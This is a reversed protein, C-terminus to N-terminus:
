TSGSSSRGVTRTRAEERLMKILAEFDLSGDGEPAKWRSRKARSIVLMGARRTEPALYKAVLQERVVKKLSAGSYGSKDGVKLELVGELPRATSRFRIDTEKEDATVGKREVALTAAAEARRVAARHYSKDRDNDNAEMGASGGGARFERWAADRPKWYVSGGGHRHTKFTVVPWATGDRDTVISGIYGQRKDRKGALDPLYHWTNDVVLPADLLAGVEAAAKVANDFYVTAAELPDTFRQANWRLFGGSM